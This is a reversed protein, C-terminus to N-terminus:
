WERDRPPSKVNPPAIYNTAMLSGEVFDLVWTSAKEIPLWGAVGTLAHLAIAVVPGHSCLVTTGRRALKILEIVKEDPTEEWLDDHVEVSLDRVVAIPAVTEKCRIARSSLIREVRFGALQDAIRNAEAYGQPSLPREMDNGVWRFRDNAHAHRTLLIRDPRNTWFEGLEAAFSKDIPYTLHGALDQHAFWAIEDVEDNSEFVGDVPRMAWYSVEKLQGGGKDFRTTGLYRGVECELGTEERVERLACGILSEGEDLKGKPFTWDDYRLRHAVLVELVGDVDRYVLGGAAQESPKDSM